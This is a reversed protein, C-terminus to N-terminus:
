LRNCLCACCRWTAPSPTGLFVVCLLPSTETSVQQERDLDNNNKYAFDGISRTMALTESSSKGTQVKVGGSATVELGAAEVRAGEDEVITAKHDTSLAKGAVPGASSRQALVARSDGLNAVVIHTATVVAVVATTGSNDEAM